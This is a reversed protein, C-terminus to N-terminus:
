TVSSVRAHVQQLESHATTVNAQIPRALQRYVIKYTSTYVKVCAFLSPLSKAKM